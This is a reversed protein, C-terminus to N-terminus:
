ALSPSAGDLICKEAEELNPNVPLVSVACATAVTPSASEDDGSISGTLQSLYTDADSSKDELTPTQLVAAHKETLVDVDVDVVVPKLTAALRPWVHAYMNQGLPLLMSVLVAASVLLHFMQLLGLGGEVAVVRPTLVHGEHVHHTQTHTQLGSVNANAFFSFLAFAGLLYQRRHTHLEQAEDRLASVAARLSQIRANLNTCYCREITTHSTKPRSPLAAPAPATLVPAPVPTTTFAPPPALLRPHAAATALATAAPDAAAATARALPAATTAAARPQDASHPRCWRSALETVPDEENSFDSAPPSYAAHLSFSGSTSGSDSSSRSSLHPSEFTFQFPDRTAYTYNLSNPSMDMLNFDMNFDMKNDEVPPWRDIRTSFSVGGTSMGRDKVVERVLGLQERCRGSSARRLKHLRDRELLRIDDHPAFAILDDRRHEWSGDVADGVEGVKKVVVVLCILDLTNHKPHVTQLSLIGCVLRLVLISPVYDLIALDLQHRLLTYPKM